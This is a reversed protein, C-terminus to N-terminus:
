KVTFEASLEDKIIRYLGKRLPLRFYKSLEIDCTTSENPLLVGSFLIFSNDSKFKVKKWEKGSKRELSFIVPSYFYLDNENNNTIIVSIKTTKRSYEALETKMEMKSIDPSRGYKDIDITTFGGPPESVTHSVSSPVSATGGSESPACATTFFLMVFALLLALIKKNFRM